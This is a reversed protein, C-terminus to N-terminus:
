RALTLSTIRQYTRDKSVKIFVLYGNVTAVFDTLPAVNDLFSSKFLVPSGNLEDIQYWSKTKLDYAVIIDGVRGAWIYSVPLKWFVKGTFIDGCAIQQGTVTSNYTEARWLNYNNHYLGISRNPHSLDFYRYFKLSSVQLPKLLVVSELASAYESFSSGSRALFYDNAVTGSLRYPPFLLMPQTPNTAPALELVQRNGDLREINTVGFGKAEPYKKGSVALSFDSGQLFIKKGIDARVYDPRLYVDSGGWSVDFDLKASRQGLGTKVDLSKDNVWVQGNEARIVTTRSVDMHWAEALRLESQSSSLFATFLALIM